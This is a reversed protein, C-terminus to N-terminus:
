EAAEDGLAAAVLGTLASETDALDAVISSHHRGAVFALTARGGAAVLADYLRASQRRFEVSEEAGAVLHVPCALAAARDQPSFGAVEDATLAIEEQIFASRLPALEYLGSVAIVAAPPVPVRLAAEVALHGGASHGVIVARGGKAGATEEIPLRVGAVVDAVVDAMRAAPMLRHDVNYFVADAAAAARAVFAFDAAAFRRWYGGHVFIVAREARGTASRWVAQMPDEGTAIREPEGFTTIAAQSLAAYRGPWADFDPVIASNQLQSDWFARSATSM